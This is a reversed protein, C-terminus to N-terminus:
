LEWLHVTLDRGGCALRNGEPSFCVTYLANHQGNLRRLSNGTLPDWLHVDFKTKLDWGATALLRGNPSYALSRAAPADIAIAVQCSSLDWIRLLKPSLVALFNGDPSFALDYDESDDEPWLVLRFSEEWKKTGWILVPGVSRWTAAVFGGSPSCASRCLGSRGTSIVRECRWRTTDWVRVEGDDAASVMWAGDPSISVSSVRGTHGRLTHEKLGVVVNHLGRSVDWVILTHDKSGTVLTQSDPTFAACLVADQHGQMAASARQRAMDWIRIEALKPNPAGEAGGESGGVTALLHGDPSFLASRVPSQHGKLEGMRRPEAAAPPPAQPINLTQGCGPCVGKRAHSGEPITLTKGCQCQIVLM